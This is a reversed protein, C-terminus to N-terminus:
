RLRVMELLEKSLIVSMEVVDLDKCNLGEFICDM